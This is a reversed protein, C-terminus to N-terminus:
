VFFMVAGILIRYIAVVAFGHAEMYRICPHIMVISIVSTLIIGTLAEDQFCRFNGCKYAEFLELTLSGAISPIALLLAFKISHKRDLSLMRAATICIGLRSVGPFISVSQFVGIIFSKLLPISAVNMKSLRPQTCSLKDIVTLLIGCCICATGMIKPSSFEKVFDRACFGLIVVPITGLMLQPLCTDAIRKKRSVLGRFMDAIDAHFYILLSILSGVHLAIKIAFSFSSIGFVASFFHLNVSSSVPIVESIGQVISLFLINLDM